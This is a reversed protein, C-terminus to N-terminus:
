CSSYCLRLDGDEICVPWVSNVLKLFDPIIRIKVKGTHESRPHVLISFWSLFLMTLM